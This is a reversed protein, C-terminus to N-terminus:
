NLMLVRNLEIQGIFLAREPAVVRPWLQGLLSQLSPTRLMGLLELM